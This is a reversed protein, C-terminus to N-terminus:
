LENQQRVPDDSRRHINFRIHCSTHSWCRLCNRCKHGLVSLSHRYTGKHRKQVMGLSLIVNSTVALIILTTILTLALLSVGFSQSYMVGKFTKKYVMMIFLGVAFALCLAILMDLFSFSSLKSLFDSKFIDSFSISNQM